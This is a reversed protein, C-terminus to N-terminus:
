LTYNYVPPPHYQRITRLSITSLFISEFYNTVYTLKGAKRMESFLLFNSEM